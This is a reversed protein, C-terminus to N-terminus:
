VPPRAAVRRPLLERSAADLEHIAELLASPGRGGPPADATLIPLYREAAAGRRRAAAAVVQEPPTGPPLGLETELRHLLDRRLTRFADATDGKRHLLEALADLFEEKSRRNPPPLPRLPGFRPAAWWLVLGGFVLVQLTVWRMPPQWLLALVDPRDRLGHYFEDF